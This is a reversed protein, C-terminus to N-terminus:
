YRKHKYKDKVNKLYIDNFVNKILFIISIIFILFPNISTLFYHSGPSSIEVFKAYLGTAIIIVFLVCSVIIALRCDREIKAIKPIDAISGFSLRQFLSVSVRLTAAEINQRHLIDRLEEFVSEFEESIKGAAERSLDINKMCYPVIAVFIINSIIGIILPLTM